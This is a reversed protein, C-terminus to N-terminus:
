NKTVIRMCAARTFAFISPASYALFLKKLQNEYGIGYFVCIFLPFVVFKTYKKVRIRSVEFLLGHIFLVVWLPM